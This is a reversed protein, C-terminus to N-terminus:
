FEYELVARLTYDSTDSDLGFIVGLQWRLAKMIGLREAGLFAPGIGLTDQGMYLELAPEFRPSQRYRVQLALSSELEDVIDDGWEYQLGINATASYRGFEKELLLATSYEWVDVGDEKELEFLLGYDLLYEGQESMQWLIEFEYAELEFDNEASQEGILYFEAFVFESVARGFGVRHLQRRSEGSIPNENEHIMRWELEWELPEVYPHYVKDVATGDATLQASCAALCIGTLVPALRRFNLRM